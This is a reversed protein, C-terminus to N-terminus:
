TYFTETYTYADAGSTEGPTPLPGMYEVTVTLTRDTAPDSAPALVISIAVDVVGEVPAVAPTITLVGGARLVGQITATAAYADPDATAVAGDIYPNTSANYALYPNVTPKLYGATATLTTASDLASSQITISKVLHNSALRGIVFTSGAGVATGNEVVIKGTFEELAGEQTARRVLGGNSMLNSAFIAM